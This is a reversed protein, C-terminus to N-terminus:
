TSHNKTSQQKLYAKSLKTRKNPKRWRSGIRPIRQPTLSQNTESGKDNDESEPLTEVNEWKTINAQSEATAKRDEEESQEMRKAQARTIVNVLQLQNVQAPKEEKDQVPKKEKPKKEEKEDEKSAKPTDQLTKDMLDHVSTNPVNEGVILNHAIDEKKLVVARITFKQSGIEVDVLTAPHQTAPANITKIRIMGNKKYETPLSEEAIVSVQAGSDLLINKRLKGQIKGERIAPPKCEKKSQLDIKNVRLPCEKARHGKGECLQCIEEEQIRNIQQPRKSRCDRAMHGEKGCNYCKFSEYQRRTSEHSSKPKQKEKEQQPEKSSEVSDEQKMSTERSPSRQRRSDKYGRPNKDKRYPHYRQEQNETPRPQDYQVAPGRYSTYSEERASFFKETLKVMEMSDAPTRERVFQRAEKPLRQIMWEKVLNDVWTQKDEGPIFRTALHMLTQREELGSASAKKSHNWFTAAANQINSEDRNRLAEKM